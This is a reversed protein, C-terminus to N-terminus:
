RHQVFYDAIATGVKLLAAAGATYMNAHIANVLNPKVKFGLIIPTTANRQIMEELERLFLTFKTVQDLGLTGLQDIAAFRLDKLHSLTKATDEHITLLRRASCYVSSTAWVSALVIAAVEEAQFLMGNRRVSALAMSAVLVMLAASAVLLVGVFSSVSSLVLNCDVELVFARANHWVLMTQCFDADQGVEDSNAGMTIPEGPVSDTMLVRIINDDTPREVHLMAKLRNGYLLHNFFEIRRRCELVLRNFDGHIIYQVWIMTQITAWLFCVLCMYYGPSQFVHEVSDDIYCRVIYVTAIVCQSVVPFYEMLMANQYADDIHRLEINHAAYILACDRLKNANPDTTALNEQKRRVLNRDEDSPTWPLGAGCLFLLCLVYVGLAIRLLPAVPGAIIPGRADLTSAFAESHSSYEVWWGAIPMLTFPITAVTFHILERLNRLICPFTPLGVHHASTGGMIECPYLWNLVNVWYHLGISARMANVRYALTCLALAALSVVLASVVTGLNGSSVAMLLWATIYLSTVALLTFHFKPAGLAETDKTDLSLHKEVDNDPLLKFTQWELHQSQGCRIEGKSTCQLVNGVHAVSHFFVADGHSEVLFQEMLGEDTGSFSVSGDHCAHLNKNSHLSTLVCAQSGVKKLRMAEWGGTNTSSFQAKGTTIYNNYNQLNNGTHAKVFVTVGRSGQAHVRALIDEQNSSLWASTEQQQPGVLADQIQTHDDGAGGLGNRPLGSPHCPSETMDAEICDGDVPDRAVVMSHM